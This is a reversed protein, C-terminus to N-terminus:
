SKKNRSDLDAAIMSQIDADSMKSYDVKQPSGPNGGGLPLLSPAADGPRPATRIRNAVSDFWEVAQDLRYNPDNQAASAAHGLIDHWDERTLEPRAASLREHDSKVANNAAEQERQAEQDRLFNAQQEQAQRLEEQQRRIEALEPNEDDEPGTSEGPDAAAAAAQQRAIWDLKAYDDPYYQEVYGRLNSFVDLPADQIQKALAVAQEIEASTMGGETLKGAWGLRENVSTIRQQADRDMKSLHPKIVNYTTEDLASRIPEWAPNDGGGASPDPVETPEPTTEETPVVADTM